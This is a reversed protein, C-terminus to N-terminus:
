KIGLKAFAHKRCLAKQKGGLVGGNPEGCGEVACQNPDGRFEPEVEPQPEPSSFDGPPLTEREREDSPTPPSVQSPDDSLELALSRIGLARMDIVLNEIMSNM